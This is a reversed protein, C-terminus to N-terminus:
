YSYLKSTFSCTKLVFFAVFLCFFIFSVLGWVATHTTVDIARHYQNTYIYDVIDHYVREHEGKNNLKTCLDCYPLNDERVFYGNKKRLYDTYLNESSNVKLLYDALDKIHKFKSADIFSDSPLLRDYNAGGRVILVTDQRFHHFFKETLYDNCM